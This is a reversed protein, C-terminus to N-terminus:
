PPGYSSPVTRFWAWALWGLGTLAVVLRARGTRYSESKWGMIAEVAFPVLLPELPFRYRSEGVILLCPALVSAIVALSLARRPDNRPLVCGIWGWALLLGTALLTLAIGLEALWSPVRKYDGFRLARVLYSTPNAVEAARVATHFAFLRPHTLVFRLADRVEVDNREIFSAPQKRNRYEEGRARKAAVDEKYRENFGYDHNEPLVTNWNKHLVNGGNTDILLFEGYRVANTATWPAVVLGLGILFAGAVRVRRARAGDVALFVGAAIWFAQYVFASRMLAALGGLLGALLARRATLSPGPVVLVAALSVLLMTFVTECLVFHTYAVVTPFLSVIGASVLAVRRGFTALALRYVGYATLTSALVQLARLAHV